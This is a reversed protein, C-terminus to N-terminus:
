ISSEKPILEGGQRQIPQNNLKRAVEEDNQGVSVWQFVNLVLGAKPLLGQFLRQGLAYSFRPQVARQELM